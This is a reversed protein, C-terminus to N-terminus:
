KIQYFREPAAHTHFEMNGALFYDWTSLHLRGMAHFIFFFVIKKIIRQYTKLGWIRNSFFWKSYAKGDRGGISVDYENVYVDYYTNNKPKPIKILAFLYTFNYNSSSCTNGLLKLLILQLRLKLLFILDYDM